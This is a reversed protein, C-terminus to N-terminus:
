AGVRGWTEGVIPAMQEPTLSYRKALGPISWGKARLKRAEAASRDDLAASASAARALTVGNKEVIARARRKAEEVDRHTLTSAGADMAVRELASYVWDLSRNFHAALADSEAEFSVHAVYAAIRRHYATRPNKDNALIDAVTLGHNYAVAEVVAEIVTM